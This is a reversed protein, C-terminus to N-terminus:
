RRRRPEHFQCAETDTWPAVIGSGPHLCTGRGFDENPVFEHCGECTLKPRTRPADDERMIALLDRPGPPQWTVARLDDSRYNPDLQARFADPETARRRRRRRAESRRLAEMAVGNEDPERQRRRKRGKRRSM